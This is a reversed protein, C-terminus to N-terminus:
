STENAAQNKIFNEYRELNEKFEGLIKSLTIMQHKTIIGVEKQMKIGISIDMYTKNIDKFIQKKNEIEKYSDYSLKMMKVIEKITEQCYAQKYMNPINVYYINYQKLLEIGKKYIQTENFSKHKM